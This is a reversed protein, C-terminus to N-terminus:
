KITIKGKIADNKFKNVRLLSLEAPNSEFLNLKDLMDGPITIIDCKMEQARIIAYLERCGAWLVEVNPNNNFLEVITLVLHSPDVGCDSIPGAFISVICHEEYNQLINYTQYIQEMSYIATINIKMKKQKAHEILDINFFGTSDIIPIKVYIEPANAALEAIEDIQQLGLLGDEWIQFSICRNNLLPQCKKYFDRYNKINNTSFLSCNTTFGVIQPNAGYKEIDLGDYFYKISHM